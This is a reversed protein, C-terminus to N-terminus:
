KLWYTTLTVNYTTLGTAQSPASFSLADVDMIRLSRELDTLFARFRDYSATVSFSLSLHGFDKGSPGLSGEEGKAEDPLGISIGSLSMGYRSALTNIDIILRVTDISGPLMTNLRNTNDPTFANYKTLLADRIAILEKSRELASDFANAETRLERVGAYRPNTFLAFLLIAAIILIISFINRM